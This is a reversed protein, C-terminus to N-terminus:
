APTTLADGHAVTTAVKMGMRKARFRCEGAIRKSTDIVDQAESGFRRATEAALRDEGHAVDEFAAILDEKTVSM